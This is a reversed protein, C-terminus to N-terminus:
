GCTPRRATVTYRVTTYWPHAPLLPSEGLNLHGHVQRTPQLSVLAFASGTAAAPVQEPRSPTTGVTPVTVAVVLCDSGKAQLLPAAWAMEPCLQHQM